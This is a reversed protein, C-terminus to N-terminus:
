TNFHIRNILVNQCFEFRVNILVVLTYKSASKRNQNLAGGNILRGLVAKHLHM